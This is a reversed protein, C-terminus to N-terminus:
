TILIRVCVSVPIINCMGVTCVCTFACCPVRSQYVSGELGGWVCNFILQDKEGCACACACWCVHARHDCVHMCVFICFLM